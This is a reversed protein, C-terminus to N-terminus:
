FAARRVNGRNELLMEPYEMLIKRATKENSMKKVAKFVHNLVPRRFEPDHGDSAVFWVQGNKILEKSLNKSMKGNKGLVSDGTLQFGVKEKVLDTIVGPNKLLTYNREPHAIVVIAGHDRLQRMVRVVGDKIFIDPLEVLYYRSGALSPLMGKAMRTGIDPSIRIEAGSFVAIGIREHKLVRSFQRVSKEIAAKDGKYVGNMFHPTAIIKDIGSQYAVRAMAVARAMTDPGDDIGPLIHCHVDIM